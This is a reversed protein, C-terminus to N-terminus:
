MCELSMLLDSAWFYFLTFRVFDTSPDGGGRGSAVVHNPLETLSFFLAFYDIKKNKAM